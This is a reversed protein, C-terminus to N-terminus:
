LECFENLKCEQIMFLLRIRPKLRIMNDQIKQTNINVTGNKFNSGPVLAAKIVIRNKADLIKQNPKLRTPFSNM